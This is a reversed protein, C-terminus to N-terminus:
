QHADTPAGPGTALGHARDREACLPNNRLRQCGAPYPRLLTRRTRRRCEPACDGGRFLGGASCAGPGLPRARVPPPAAPELAPRRRPNKPRNGRQQRREMAAPPAAETKKQDIASKRVAARREILQRPRELVRRLLWEALLAGALTVIVQWLADLVVARREPVELNYRWWEGVTKVQLFMRGTLRLEDGIASLRKGILDFVQAVLGNETLGIPLVQEQVAAVVPPPPSSVTGNPGATPGATAQAIAALTEELEARKTEDKLIALAHKAQAPTVSPGSVPAEGVTHEAGPRWAGGPVPCNSAPFGTVASGTACLPKNSSVHALPSAFFVRAPSGTGFAPATGAGLKGHPLPHALKCSGGKM